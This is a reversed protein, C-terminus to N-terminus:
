GWAIDQLLNLIDDLIRRARPQKVQGSDLNKKIATITDCVPCASITM